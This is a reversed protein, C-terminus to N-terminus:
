FNYLVRYRDIKAEFFEEDVFPPIKMTMQNTQMAGFKTFLLLNDIILEDGSAIEIDKILFKLNLVTNGGLVESSQYRYYYPKGNVTLKFFKHVYSEIAAMDEFSLSAPDMKQRNLTNAFDDIFVRCHLSLKSGEEDYELLSTSLKLPHDFASVTLLLAFFFFAQFIYRKM